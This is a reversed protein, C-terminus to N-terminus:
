GGGTKGDRVKIKKKGANKKEYDLIAQPKTLNKKSLTDSKVLTTNESVDIPLLEDGDRRAPKDFYWNETKEIVGGVAYYKWTGHKLSFGEMKVIEKRLIIGPNNPDMVNVTDYPNDPNVARWSEQRVPDGMPNLYTSQGNKNGWRYGEIATLDGQLSFRRWTGEKKNNIYEGEEEYGREGRLSEVKVVWRGQKKGKVDVCNLTDGRVSIIYDKCQANVNFSILMSLILIYRM